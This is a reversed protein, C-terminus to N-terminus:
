ASSSSSVGARESRLRLEVLSAYAGDRSAMLQEHTGLAVVGGDRLVAIVDAGMITPLRHAVVVATRGAAARCPASRSRTWRARRRTWCCSGRTGSCPGRSPWASGRGVPSSPAGRSPSPATAGPYGDGRLAIITSKGCGSEGVLAVTKGSPIRLNLDLIQMEPRSPCSFCVHRLELEAAVDALVMGNDSNPDIKSKRDILAFISSASEKAKASDSGLASTQSVGITAM